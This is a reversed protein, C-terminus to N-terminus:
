GAPEDDVLLGGGQLSEQESGCRVSSETSSRLEKM